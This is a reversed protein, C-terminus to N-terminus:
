VSSAVQETKFRQMGKHVSARRIRIKGMLERVSLTSDDPNARLHDVVFGVPDAVELYEVGDASTDADASVPASSPLLAPREGSPLAVPSTQPRFVPRDTTDASSASLLGTRAVDAAWKAAKGPTWGEAIAADRLAEYEIQVRVAIWEGDFSQRSKRLTTVHQFFAEGSVIAVAPIAIASLLAVILGVQSPLPLSGFSSVVAQFSLQEIGAGKVVSLISGAGNVVVTIVLLLRRLAPIIQNTQPKGDVAAEALMFATYVLGLEIGIPAVGGRGPAILDFIEQTHQASLIFFVIAIVLWGIPQAYTFVQEVKSIRARQSSEWRARATQRVIGVDPWNTQKQEM